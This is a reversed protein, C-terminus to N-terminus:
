VRSMLILDKKYGEWLVKEFLGIVSCESIGDDGFGLVWDQVMQGVLKGFDFVMVWFELTPPPLLRSSNSM